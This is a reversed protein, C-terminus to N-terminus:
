ISSVKLIDCLRCAAEGIQWRNELEDTNFIHQAQIYFPSRIELTQVIFTHLEEDTKDKLVPRSTTSVRLRRLLIDPHVKLFITEGKQNMFDMNDFFCPAGGGTSIIVNEFEAVEHLIKKELERFGTEGREEFLDRIKKHFRNEIFCDIDVFSLNLKRAVIKGLTTKGAGMYGILFVRIM